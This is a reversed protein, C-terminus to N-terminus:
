CGGVSRSISLGHVRVRATVLVAAAGITRLVLLLRVVRAVM